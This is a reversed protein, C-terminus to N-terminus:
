FVAKRFYRSDLLTMGLGTHVARCAGVLRRVDDRDLPRDGSSFGHEPDQYVSRLLAVVLQESVAV